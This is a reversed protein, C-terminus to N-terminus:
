LRIVGSGMMPKTSVERIQLPKVLTNSLNLTSFFEIRQRGDYTRVEAVREDEGTAIILRNSLDLANQNAIWIKFVTM